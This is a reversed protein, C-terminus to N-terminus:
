RSATVELKIPEEINKTVISVTSASQFASAVLESEDRSLRSVMEQAGVPTSPASRAAIELKIVMCKTELQKIEMDCLAGFAAIGM